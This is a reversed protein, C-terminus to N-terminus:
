YLEIWAREALPNPTANPLLAGSLACRSFVLEASGAASASLAATRARVSGRFRAGSGEVVLKGGVIVPGDFSFGGDVSLDGTVMLVGQGSGGVLRLNGRAYIIPFYHACGPVAAGGWNGRLATDCAMATGVPQPREFPVDDLEYVKAAAAVLAAWAAAVAARAGSDEAASEVALRPSGRVCASDGCGPLLVQTTPTVAIGAMASGAPPCDPASARDAGDVSVGSGLELGDTVSLAAGVPLAVPTPRVLLAVSRRSAGAPDVGTSRVLFLSRGLRLVTGAYSGTGGPLVGSFGSVAGPALTGFASSRWGALARALGAEAAGLARQSDRVNTGLRLAQRASFFAGAVLAEILVLAFLTVALTFGRSGSPSPSTV